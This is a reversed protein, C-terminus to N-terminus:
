ATKEYLCMEKKNLDRGSIVHIYQGRITFIIFLLRNKKTKGIIRYRKEYESHIIDTFIKKKKDYFIEEIENNHVRHKIFNKDKNGKDWQFQLPDPLTTM